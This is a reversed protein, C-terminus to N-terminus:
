PVLLTSELSRIKETGDEMNSSINLNRSQLQEIESTMRRVAERNRADETQLNNHEETKKQLNEENKKNKEELNKLKEESEKVRARLKKITTNLTLQQKSLKEGEELLGSIQRDKENVLDDVHNKSFSKSLSEKAGKLQVQTKHLEDQLKQHEKELAKMNTLEKSNIQDKENLFDLQSKLDDNQALLDANSTSLKVLQEERSQFRNTLIEFSNGLSESHEVLKSIAIESAKMAAPDISQVESPGDPPAELHDYKIHSEEVIKKVKPSKTESELDPKVHLSSSEEEPNLISQVQDTERQVKETVPFKAKDAEPPNDENSLSQTSPVAKEPIIIEKKTGNISEDGRDATANVPSTKELDPKKASKDFVGENDTKTDNDITIKSAKIVKTKKKISTRPSKKKPKEQVDFEEDWGDNNWGNAKPVDPKSPISEDRVSKDIEQYESHSNEQGNEAGNEATAEESIDLVKDIGRQAERAIKTISQSWSSWSM